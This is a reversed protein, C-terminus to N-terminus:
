KSMNIEYQSICQYRKVMKLTECLSMNIEYQSIHQYWKVTKLMECISMAEREHLQGDAHM